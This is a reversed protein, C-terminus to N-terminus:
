ICSWYYWYYCYYYYIPHFLILILYYFIFLDFGLMLNIDYLDMIFARLYHFLITFYSYILLNAYIPFLICMSITMSLAMRYFFLILM